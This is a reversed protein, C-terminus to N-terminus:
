SHPARWSRRWAWCAPTPAACLPHDRSGDPSMEPLCGCPWLLQGESGRGLAPVPNGELGPCSHAYGTAHRQMAHSPSRSGLLQEGYPPGHSCRSSAMLALIVVVGVIAAAILLFDGATIDHRSWALAGGRGVRYVDRMVPAPLM